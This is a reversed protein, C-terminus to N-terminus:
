EIHLYNDDIDKDSTISLVYGQHFSDSSSTLLKYGESNIIDESNLKEVGAFYRINLLKMTEAMMTIQDESYDTKETLSNYTRNYALEGFYDEAYRTFNLLNEDTIKNNKAWTEVDVKSTSYDFSGDKVSYKLIGYQHPNVSLAGSAVDYLQGTATNDSSIDQVHIHGSFVLNMQNGKFRMGALDSNNLTYGERIVESHNLINHHMVTIITAGKELALDSCTKIWDLTSKALVGDTEPYGLTINNKYKNTDLMMLWVESSPAALYSLTDKDKSIAEKYGFSSYIKSFDQDSIFETVYQKDDKFGRAYPNSIDHNGPIVFVSTGSKEIRTLKAALDLHSEKEGNSTLDGSLILIDPKTSIINDTFAELIQDIYELQKGDGSSMYKAFAEGHDNLNDSLYHIDSTIYISLDRGSIQKKDDKQNRSIIANGVFTSIVAVIMIIIFGIKIKKGKNM